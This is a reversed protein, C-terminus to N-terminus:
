RSSIITVYNRDTDPDYRFPRLARQRIPRWRGSTRYEGPDSCNSSIAGHQKSRNIVIFQSSSCTVATSCILTISAIMYCLSIAGKQKCRRRSRRSAGDAARESMKARTRDSTRRQRLPHSECDQERRRSARKRRFVAGAVPLLRGGSEKYEEAVALAAERRCGRERCLDDIM